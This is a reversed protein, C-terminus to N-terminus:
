GTSTAFIKEKVQLLKKYHGDFGDELKQQADKFVENEVRFIKSFSKESLSLELSVALTIAYKPSVKGSRIEALADKIQKNINTATILSIKGAQWSAPNQKMDSMMREILAAHEKEELELHEFLKAHEPFLKKCEGYMEGLLLENEKLVQAIDLLEM